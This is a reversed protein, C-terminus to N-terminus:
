NKQGLFFYYPVQLNFASFFPISGFRVSTVKPEVIEALRLSHKENLYVHDNAFWMKWFRRFIPAQQPSLTFDTAALYGGPVLMDYVSKLAGEWNPIM